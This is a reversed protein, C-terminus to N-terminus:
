ETVRLVPSCSMAYHTEIRQSPARTAFGCDLSDLDITLVGLTRGSASQLDSMIFLKGRIINVRCVYPGSGIRGSEGALSCHLVAPQGDGYQTWTIEGSGPGAKITDNGSNRVLKLFQCNRFSADCQFALGDQEDVALGLGEDAGALQQTHESKPKPASPVAPATAVGTQPAICCSSTFGRHGNWTVICWDKHSAGNDQPPMCQGIQLGTAGAPIDVVDDFTVGPGSRIPVSGGSVDAPVMYLGAPAQPAPQQSPAASSGADAFASRGDWGNLDDANLYDGSLGSDSAFGALGNWCVECWGSITQGNDDPLVCNGVDVTAGSPVQAVVAHDVGPGSRLNLYGSPLDPKVTDSDAFAGGGFLVLAAVALWIRVM